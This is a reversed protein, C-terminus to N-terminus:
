LPAGCYSCEDADTANPAGCDACNVREPGGGADDESTALMVFGAVVLGLPVLLAVVPGLLDALMFLVFVFFGLAILRSGTSLGM